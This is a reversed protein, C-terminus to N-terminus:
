SYSEFILDSTVAVLADKNIFEEVRDQNIGYLNSASLYSRTELLRITRIRSCNRNQVYTKSTSVITLKSYGKPEEMRDDTRLELYRAISNKEATIKLKELDRRYSIICYAIWAVSAFIYFIFVIWFTTAVDHLIEDNTKVHVTPETPSETSTSPLDM